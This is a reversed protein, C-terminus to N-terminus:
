LQSKRLSSFWSLSLKIEVLGFQQGHEQLIQLNKSLFLGDPDQIVIWRHRLYVKRKATAQLQCRRHIIQHYKRHLSSASTFTTTFAPPGLGM